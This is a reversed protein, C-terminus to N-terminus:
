GQGRGQGGAGGGDRNGNGGAGAPGAGQMRSQQELEEQFGQGGDCQQRQQDIREIAIRRAQRFPDAGGAGGDHPPERGEQQEADANLHQPVTQGLEQPRQREAAAGCASGSLDPELLATFDISAASRAWSKRADPIIPRKRSTPMPTHSCAASESTVAVMAGAMAKSRSPM